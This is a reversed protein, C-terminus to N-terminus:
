SEISSALSTASQGSDGGLLSTLLCSVAVISVSLPCLSRTLPPLSSLRQLSPAQSWTEGEQRSCYVETKAPHPPCGWVCPKGSAQCWHGGRAVLWLSGGGTTRGLQPPPSTPPCQLSTHSSGGWDEAGQQTLLPLDRQGGRWGGLEWAAPGARWM